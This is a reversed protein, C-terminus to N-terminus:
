YTYVRHSVVVHTMLLVSPEVPRPDPFRRAPHHHIISSSGHSRPVRLFDLSAIQQLPNRNIVRRCCTHCDRTDIVGVPM